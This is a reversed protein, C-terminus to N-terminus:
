VDKEELLFWRAWRIPEGFRNKGSEWVTAINFGDQKLETIRAPLEVIGLETFAEARTISGFERLWALVRAKQNVKM